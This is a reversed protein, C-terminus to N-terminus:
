AKDLTDLAEVLWERFKERSMQMSAMDAVPFTKDPHPKAESRIMVEVKGEDTLSANIFPPSETPSTFAALCKNM